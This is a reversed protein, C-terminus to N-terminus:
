GVKVWYKDIKSTRYATIIFLLNNREECVVRLLMEKRMHWDLYKSQYIRRGKQLEIVQEPGVVTNIILEELLQRRNIEFLAHETIKIDM